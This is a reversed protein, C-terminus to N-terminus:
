RPDDVLPRLVALATTAIGKLYERGAGSVSVSSMGDGRVLSRVELWEGAHAPGALRYTLSRVIRGGAGVWFLRQGAEPPTVGGSRGAGMRYIYPLVSSVQHGRLQGTLVSRPAVVSSNPM